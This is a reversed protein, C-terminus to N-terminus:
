SRLGIQSPLQYPRLGFFKAVTFLHDFIDSQIDEYELWNTTKTFCYIELPLGEKVPALQRVMLTHSRNILENNELYHQIYKRFTGINTLRKQNPSFEEDDPFNIEEAKHELYNRILKVTKLSEFDKKDLYRISHVDIFLSRKIRRGKAESMGRWNVLTTEMLKHTPVTVITKDWNQVKILHLGIEIVDGDAKFEPVEIWDGEKILEQSNIVISSTFSLITDRFVLLLVASFAGLGTVLVWPSKGILITIITATGLVVALIKMLTMYSQHIPFSHALKTRNYVRRSAELARLFVLVLILFLGASAMREIFFEGEGFASSVSNMVILPIAWSLPHFTKTDLFADDWGFNTSRIIKSLLKKIVVSQIFIHAIFGLAIAGISFILQHELFLEKSIM